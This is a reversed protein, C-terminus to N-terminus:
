VWGPGHQDMEFRANSEQSVNAFFREARLDGKGRGSTSTTMNQQDDDEAIWGGERICNPAPLADGVVAEGM